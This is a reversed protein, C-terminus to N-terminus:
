PAGGADLPLLQQGPSAVGADGFGGDRSNAPMCVYGAPSPYIQTCRWDPACPMTPSCPASCIYGTDRTLGTKLCLGSHCESKGHESCNGGLGKKPQGALATQRRESIPRTERDPPRECASFAFWSGVILVGLHSSAALAQAIGFRLAM